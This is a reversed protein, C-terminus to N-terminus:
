DDSRRLGDEDRPEARESISEDGPDCYRSDEFEDESLEVEPHFWDDPKGDIVMQRIPEGCHRCAVETPKTTM